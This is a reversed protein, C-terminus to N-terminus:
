QAEAYAAEGPKRCAGPGPMPCAGGLMPCAGGLMPCTKGMIQRVGRRAIGGARVAAGHDRHSCAGGTSASPRGM